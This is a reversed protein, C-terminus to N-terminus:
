VALWVSVVGDSGTQLVVSQNATVFPRWACIHHVSHSWKQDYHNLDDFFIEDVRRHQLLVYIIM